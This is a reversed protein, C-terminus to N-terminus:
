TTMPAGSGFVTLVDKYYFRCISLSVVSIINEFTLISVVYWLVSVMAQDVFITSRIGLTFLFKAVDPLM